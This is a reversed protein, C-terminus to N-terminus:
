EMWKCVALSGSVRYGLGVVVEKSPTPDMQSRSPHLDLRDAALRLHSQYNVGM